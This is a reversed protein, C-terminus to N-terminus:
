WPTEVLPTALDAMLDNIKEGALTQANRTLHTYLATTKLSKHGLWLQILRLNVGAELLHTAWSHRLTHVTAKKAVGSNVLAAKFAKQVSGPGLPQTAQSPLCRFRSPFLLTAHRHNAWQQRLLALTPKPLPTLYCGYIYRADVGM